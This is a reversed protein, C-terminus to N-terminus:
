NFAGERPQSKIWTALVVTQGGYDAGGKSVTVQCHQAGRQFQLQGQKSNVQGQFPILHWEQRPMQSRYWRLTASPSRTTLLTLTEAVQGFDLSDIKTVVQAGPPMPFKTDLDPEGMEPALSVVLQGISGNATGQAQVSFYYDGDRWGLSEMNDDNRRVAKDGAYEREFFDLVDASSWRTDFERISMPLGNLAMSPAVWQMGLESPADLSPLSLSAKLPDEALAAGAWVALAVNAAATLIRGYM